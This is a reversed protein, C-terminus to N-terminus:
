INSVQVDAFPVISYSPPSSARGAAGNIKIIDSAGLVSKNNEQAANTSAAVPRNNIQDFFNWYM